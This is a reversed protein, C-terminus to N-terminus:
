IFKTDPNINTLIDNMIEENYLGAKLIVVPCDLGKLIKPSKVSLSSGYLRKGQKMPSNDLVSKIRDSNLGFSFLYQSFIHAGFLFVESDTEAVKRNVEEVMSQHYSIYDQFMTKYHEYRSAPWEIKHDKSDPLKEVAYFHSHNLFDVKELLKFGTKELFYDVYYDTMLMSHEFNIANTFKSSFLYELNPYGFLFKGGVPLFSSVDMLFSEPDYVHELVQSLVITENERDEQNLDGPFFSRKIKLRDDEAFTPNPEVVTYMIDADRNLLHRALKGSGGGIELINGKKHNNIFDALAENYDAWMQGTADMHQHMYLIEMPVLKTLQVMGTLPDIEWVMNALLDEGQPQDTCGMFVPFDQFTYLHELNDQGTIVSRPRSIYNSLKKM